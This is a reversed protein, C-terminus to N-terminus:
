HASSSRRRVAVGAALMLAASLPALVAIPVEPVEAPPVSSAVSTTTTGATTTTTTTAATTTTAGPALSGVLTTSTTTSASVTPAVTTVVPIAFSGVQTTPTTGGVGVGSVAAPDCAASASPVDASAGLAIALLVAAIGSSVRGFRGFRRAVVVFVIGVCIAVVAWTIVDAVAFGTVPLSFTCEDAAPRM